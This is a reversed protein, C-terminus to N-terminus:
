SPQEEKAVVVTTDKDEPPAIRDALRGAFDGASRLLPNVQEYAEGPERVPQAEANKVGRSLAYFVGGLVAGTVALSLMTIAIFGLLVFGQNIPFAEGFLQLNFTGFGKPSAEPIRTVNIGFGPILAIVIIAFTLLTVAASVQWTVNSLVGRWGSEEAMDNLTPEPISDDPHESMRPNFGGIGWITGAATSFIGLVLVLGLNWYPTFGFAVRLLTVVLAGAAFGIVAGVAGRSIGPRM